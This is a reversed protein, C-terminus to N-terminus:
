RPKLLGNNRVLDSFDARESMQIPVEAAIALRIVKDALDTAEAGANERYYLVLGRNKAANQFVGGLQSLEVEEGSLLIKNSSLVSVEHINCASPRLSGEAHSLTSFLFLLTSIIVRIMLM